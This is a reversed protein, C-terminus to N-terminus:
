MSFIHKNIVKLYVFVFSFYLRKHQFLLIENKAMIVQFIHEIAASKVQNYGISSQLEDPPGFMAFGIKKRAFDFEEKSFSFCFTEAFNDAMLLQEAVALEEWTPCGQEEPEAWIDDNPQLPTRLQSSIDEGEM